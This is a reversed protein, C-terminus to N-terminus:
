AASGSPGGAIWRNLAAALALVGFALLVIGLDQLFSHQASDFSYTIRGRTNNRSWSEANARIVLGAIVCAIGALAAIGWRSM